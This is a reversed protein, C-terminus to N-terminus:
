VESSLRKFIMIFLIVLIVAGLTWVYWKKLFDKLSSINLNALIPSIINIVMGPSQPQANSTESVPGVKSTGQTFNISPTGGPALSASLPGCEEPNNLPTEGCNCVKDELHKCVKCYDKSGVPCIQTDCKLENKCQGDECSDVTCLNKDDCSQFLDNKQEKSDYWYLNNEACKKEYYKVYTSEPPAYEDPRPAPTPTLGTRCEAGKQWDTWRGECLSSYGSCYQLRTKSINAGGSACYETTNESNCVVNSPRFNCGDCCPGSTCQCHNYALAVGTIAFSILAISLFILLKSYIKM